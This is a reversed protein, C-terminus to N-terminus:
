ALLLLLLTSASAGRTSAQPQLLSERPCAGIQQAAAHKESKIAAQLAQVEAKSSVRLEQLAQLANSVANRQKKLEKELEKIKQLAKEHREDRQAGNSDEGQPQAGNKGDGQAGSKSDAQAGDPGGAQAGDPGDGESQDDGGQFMEVTTKLQAAEERAEDLAARLEDAEKAASAAQQQMAALATAHAARESEM